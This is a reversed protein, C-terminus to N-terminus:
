KSKVYEKYRDPHKSKVHLTRGPTSSMKKNCFPCRIDSGNDSEEIQAVNEVPACLNDLSESDIVWPQVAFYKGDQKKIDAYYIICKKEKAKELLEAHEKRSKIQHSSIIKSPPRVLIFAIQDYPFRKKGELIEIAEELALPEDNVIYYGDQRHVVVGNIKGHQSDRLRRLQTNLSTM